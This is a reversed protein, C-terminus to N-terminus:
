KLKKTVLNAVRQIIGYADVSVRHLATEEDHLPDDNRGFEFVAGFSYADHSIERQAWTTIHSLNFQDRSSGVLIAGTGRGECINLQPFADSLRKEVRGFLENFREIIDPYPPPVNTEVPVVACVGLATPQLCRAEYDPTLHMTGDVVTIIGQEVAGQQDVIRLGLNRGTFDVRNLNIVGDPVVAGYERLRSSNRPDFWDEPLTSRHHDSMPVFVQESARTWGIQDIYIAMPILSRDLLRATSRVRSDREDSIFTRQWKTQAFYLKAELQYATVFFLTEKDFLRGVDPTKGAPPSLKCAYYLTDVTKSILEIAVHTSVRVDLSPTVIVTDLLDGLVESASYGLSVLQSNLGKEIVQEGKINIKTRHNEAQRSAAGRGKRSKGRKSNSTSHPKSSEVSNLEAMVTDTVSTYGTTTM